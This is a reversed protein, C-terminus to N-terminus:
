RHVSVHIDFLIKVRLRDVIYKRKPSSDNIEFGFCASLNPLFFTLQMFSAIITRGLFSVSLLICHELSRARQLGINKGAKSIYYM